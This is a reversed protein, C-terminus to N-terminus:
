RKAGPDTDPHDALLPALRRRARVLRSRLADHSCGLVAAAEAGPMGEVDVLWIAARDLPALQRLADVDSPYAVPRDRDVAALRPLAGRLRGLSRRENAALHAITRRLYALPDDLDALPGRRLTRVLAEQVLDDAAHEPPCVVAAFRHLAPYLARFAEDEDVTEPPDVDTVRDRAAVGMWVGCWRATHCTRGGPDPPVTPIVATHNTWLNPIFGTSRSHVIDDDDM